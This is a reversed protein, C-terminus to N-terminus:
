ADDEADSDEFLKCLVRKSHTKLLAADEPALAESLTALLGPRTEPKVVHVLARESLM